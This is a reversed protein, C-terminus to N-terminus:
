EDEEFFTYGSNTPPVDLPEIEEIEEVFMRPPSTSDNRVASRLEQDARILDVAAFEAAEPGNAEVFRTTYFGHPRVRGESEILFHKGRILTRFWPM